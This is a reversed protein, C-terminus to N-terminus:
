KREKFDISMSFELSEIGRTCDVYARVLFVESDGHQLSTVVEVHNVDDVDDRDRLVSEVFECVSQNSIEM